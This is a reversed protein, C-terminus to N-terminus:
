NENIIVQNELEVNLADVKQSLLSNPGSIYAILENMEVFDNDLSSYKQDVETIKEELIELQEVCKIQQEPHIGPCYGQSNDSQHIIPTPLDQVQECM